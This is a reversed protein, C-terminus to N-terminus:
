HLLLACHLSEGLDVVLGFLTSLLPVGPHGHIGEGSALNPTFSRVKNGTYLYITYQQGITDLFTM